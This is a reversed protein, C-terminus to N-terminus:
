GVAFGAGGDRRRRRQAALEWFGEPSDIGGPLRLGLGVIAIPESRRKELLDLRARLTRVELLAKKVPSLEEM